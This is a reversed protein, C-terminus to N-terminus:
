LGLREKVLGGVIIGWNERKLWTAWAERAQSGMAIIEADSHKSLWRELIEGTKHMDRNTVRIICNQWAIKNSLPLVCEDGVLLNVRGMSMAEYLRYRIAGRLITIPCLAVRSVQMTRLYSEKLQAAKKPERNDIHPWFMPTRVIHAKLKSREVSSIVPKTHGGVQGQFVADYKFGSPPLTLYAGLDNVPWPWSIIDPDSKLMTPSVCARFFVGPFRSLDRFAKTGGDPGLGFLVHRHRTDGRYYPLSEIMRDTLTILRQRVVYVDAQRPDTTAESGPWKYWVFRPHPIGRQRCYEVRDGDPGIWPTGVEKDTYYYVKM